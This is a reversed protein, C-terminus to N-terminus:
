VVTVLAERFSELISERQKLVQAVTHYNSKQTLMAEM